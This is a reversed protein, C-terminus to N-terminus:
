PTTAPPEPLVDRCTRDNSPACNRGILCGGEVCAIVDCDADEFCRHGSLECHGTVPNAPDSADAGLCKDSPCDSNRTCTCHGFGGGESGLCEIRICTGEPCDSDLKCPVQPDVACSGHRGTREFCDGGPPGEPCEEDVTCATLSRTCLGSTAGEAIDCIEPFTCFPASPPIIIVDQCDYGNPCAENGYCDVGCFEGGNVDDTLCYNGKDGCDDSAVGGECGLCYPGRGDDECIGTTLNCLQGFGCLNDATCATGCQGLNGLRAGVCGEGILCDADDRCGEVCKLTLKDCVQRFPCQSDLTCCSQGENPGCEQLSLCQSSTVDCFLGQESAGCDENTECGAITQCRGVANCFEDQGCGRDDTCICIGEDLKCASFGQGTADCQANSTCLEPGGCDCSSAAIAVLALALAPATIKM